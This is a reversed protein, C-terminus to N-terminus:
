RRRPQVRDQEIREVIVGAGLELPDGREVVEGVFEGSSEPLPGARIGCPHRGPVDLQGTTSEDCGCGIEHKVEITGLCM